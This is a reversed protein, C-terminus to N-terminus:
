IVRHNDMMPRGSHAKSINEGDSNSKQIQCSILGLFLVLTYYFIVSRHNIKINMSYFYYKVPLFMIKFANVNMINM